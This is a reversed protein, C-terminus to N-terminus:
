TCKQRVFKITDANDLHQISDIGLSIAAEVNLLSDDIFISKIANTNAMSLASQYFSLSPKASGIQASSVVIDLESDLDSVHIDAALKTTANTVLVLQCQPAVKRLEKMLKKDTNWSAKKWGSMLELAASHNYRNELENKVREVWEEHTIEGHVAPSLFEPAFAVSLLAGKGVDTLEEAKEIESNSWHRIVGDFDILITDKM